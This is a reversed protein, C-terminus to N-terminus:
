FHISYHARRANTQAMTGGIVGKLTVGEFYQAEGMVHALQDKIWKEPHIVMPDSASAREIFIDQTGLGLRSKTEERTAYLNPVRPAEPNVHRYFAIGLARFFAPHGLVFGVQSLSLPRSELRIMYYRWGDHGTHTSSGAAFLDVPRVRQILMLLAVITAGRQKLVDADVSCSAFTDVVVKIPSTDSVLKVRRRMPTPSGALWDGMNVRGGFPSRVTAWASTNPLELSTELRDLLKEASTVADNHGSIACHLATDPEMNGLWNTDQPDHPKRGFSNVFDTPCDFRCVEGLDATRLQQARREERLVYPKRRPM